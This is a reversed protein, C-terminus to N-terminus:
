DSLINNIKQAFARAKLSAAGTYSSIDMLNALEESSLYHTIEQDQQLLGLLPNPNEKYIAQWAIMAHERLLSHMQQRDAGQKVLAMLVPEVAAFPAFKALNAEIAPKNIQLGQLIRHSVHLLEDSILFAEPLITRRNASDDLTRELVMNAANDWAIRPMQALMRALSDVKEAKVPNRKFPMASSGVQLTGFPEQLEGIAPSQLIRIDLAFKSLSSGLGALGSLVAFDQKRPYVQTTIDFFPIKILDSLIKEFRDVNEVGLLAAFSASNGVAGKFGKGKIQKHLLSLTEWDMLLDQSYQAMRYGLTSPEAPQIHTFAIVPIESWDLIREAFLLLLSKLEELILNLSQRIRIVDTNDKIDASTAGLHIIGAGIAAQESFAKIEAMLDHHIESEIELTRKLDVQNVHEQLDIRQKRTVLGFEEEAQALSVWLQRWILHQNQESWIHRMKKSGYRWTFPSLYTNFDFM